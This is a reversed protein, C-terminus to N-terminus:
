TEVHSQKERQGYFRQSHLPFSSQTKRPSGWDYPAFTHLYETDSWGAIRRVGAETLRGIGTVGWVDPHACWYAM